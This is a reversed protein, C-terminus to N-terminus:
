GRATEMALFYCGLFAALLPNGAAISVGLLPIAIALKAQRLQKESM